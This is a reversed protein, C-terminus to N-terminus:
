ANKYGLLHAKEQSLSFFTQINKRNDYKGKSAVSNRRNYLYKRIKPDSCYDLM